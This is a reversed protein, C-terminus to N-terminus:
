CGVAVEVANEILAESLEWIGTESLLYKMSLQNGM